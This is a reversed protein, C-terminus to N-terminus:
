WTRRNLLLRGYNQLVWAAVVARLQEESEAAFNLRRLTGVGPLTLDIAWSRAGDPTLNQIFYGINLAGAADRRLDISDITV